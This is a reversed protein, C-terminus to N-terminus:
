KSLLRYLVQAAEARTTLGQPAFSDKSRGQILGLAAAKKVDGAAWDAISAEDAFTPAETSAPKGAHLAYARMVISTMEERTVPATPDFHGEDRGNVLGAKVAKSVESAFWDSSQVDEFTSSTAAKLNLARAILATFEARSVNREPAFVNEGTGSIIQKSALERIVEAAWHTAPVDNFTKSVELVVYKSFHEIDAVIEGDRYEGGVRELQGNDSIYYISSLKANISPDVKMHLSVSKDFQSLAFTRGDNTTISLKIDYIAGGLKVDAGLQQKGQNLINAESGTDSPEVNLVITSTSRGQEDVMRTLQQFIEAPIQLKIKDSQVELKNGALLDATNFPLSLQKAASPISLVVPGSGNSVLQEPKITVVNNSDTNGQAADGGTGGGSSGGTSTSPKGGSNNHKAVTVNLKTNPKLLTEEKLSSTSTKVEKLALEAIGARKAKFTLNGLTASGNLGTLSGTKTYVLQVHSGGDEVIKIPLTYGTLDTFKKTTDLELLSTDYYVNLEYAFVDNLQDANIQIQFSDQELVTGSSASSLSFTPEEAALTTQPLM